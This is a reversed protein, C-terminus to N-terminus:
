EAGGRNDAGQAAAAPLSGGSPGGRRNGRSDAGMVSVRIGSTVQGLPTTVLDAGPEIGSEIVAELDNQWAIHIDRRRLIGDEVTYVYAGQYIASNPIVLAGPLVKGEVEATVYQGIKLPSRGENQRGFPDEIQAIVHLQRASEDIAGETRVLRAQWEEEGILDSKIIAGIGSNGDTGTFRYREPLNIFRLDRNRLPLRIEV